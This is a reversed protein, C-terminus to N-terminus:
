AGLNTSTLKTDWYTILEQSHETHVQSSHTNQNKQIYHGLVKRNQRKNDRNVKSKRDLPDTWQYSHPTLTEWQSQIEM